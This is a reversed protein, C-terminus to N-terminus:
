WLSVLVSLGLKPNPNSIWVCIMSSENEVARQSKTDKHNLGM